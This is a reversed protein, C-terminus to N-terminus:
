INHENNESHRFRLHIHLYYGPEVHNVEWSPLSRCADVLTNNLHHTVLVMTELVPSLQRYGYVIDFGRVGMELHKLNKCGELLYISVEERTNIMTVEEFFHPLIYESIGEGTRWEIVFELPHPTIYKSLYKCMENMRTFVIPSTSQTTNYIDLKLRRVTYSENSDQLFDMLDTLEQDTRIKITLIHEEENYNLRYELPLIVVCIYEDDDVDNVIMRNPRLPRRDPFLNAYQEAIVYRLDKDQEFVGVHIEFLEGNLMKVIRTDFDDLYSYSM